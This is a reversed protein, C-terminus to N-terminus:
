KRGSNNNEPPRKRTTVKPDGQPKGTRPSVAPGLGPAKISVGM